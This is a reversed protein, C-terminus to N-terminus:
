IEGIKFGDRKDEFKKLLAAKEPDRPKKKCNANLNTSAYQEAQSITMKMLIKKRISANKSEM